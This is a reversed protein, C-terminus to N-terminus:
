LKREALAIIDFKPLNTEFFCWNFSVRISVVLSRLWLTVHGKKDHPRALERSLGFVEVVVTAITM